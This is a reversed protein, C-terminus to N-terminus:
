NNIVTIFGRHVISPKSTFRILYYYTDTSLLKGNIKGDWRNNYNALKTLIRGNRDYITVENDPYTAINEVVFYDNIGDQRTTLINTPKVFYDDRVEVTFPIKTVSGNNNTITVVYNVTAGHKFVPNLSTTSSLGTPSWSVSRIDTGVIELQSSYGKSIIPRTSKTVVNSTALNTYQESHTGYIVPLKSITILFRKETFLGESDTSRVRIDYDGRFSHLFVSDAILQNGNIRFYRNDLSDNGEEVL